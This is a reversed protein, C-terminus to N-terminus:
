NGVKKELADKAANIEAEKINHGVGSGLVTGHVRAEVVYQVNDSNLNSESVKVYDINDKLIEQLKSKSDATDVKERALPILPDYINVLLKRVVVYGQDLYVAAIFAEFIDEDIHKHFKTNSAEGVSYQVLSALGFRKESFDTLTNGKVLVAKMKTLMGSNENPYYYHLFDAIIMGLISDGLFELRDYCPCEPHENTYSAHTFAEDYVALDNPVIHFKDLLARLEKERSKEM